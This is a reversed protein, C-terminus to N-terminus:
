VPSSVDPVRRLANGPGMVAVKARHIRAERDDVQGFVMIILVDGPQGYRAAAGNLCFHRPKRGPIAYTVWRAGTTVNAVLVQEGPLIDLKRLLDRPITMSGAYDPDVSNVTARHIKARLLTRLM